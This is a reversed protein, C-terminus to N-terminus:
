MISNEKWLKHELKTWSKLKLHSVTGKEEGIEYAINRHEMQACEYVKGDLSIWGNLIIKNPM